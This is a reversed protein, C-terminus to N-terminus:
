ELVAVSETKPSTSENLAKDRLHLKRHRTLNNPWRFSFGCEECKYPKEKTHKMKHHKLSLASFFSRDCVPCVNERPMDKMHSKKHTKLLTSTRFGKGCEECVHPKEGTHIMEHYKKRSLSEFARDCYDCPFRNLLNTNWEFNANEEENGVHTMEHYMKAKATNFHRQCIRCPYRKIIGHKNETHKRLIDPTTCVKPCLECSWTRERTHTNIHNKMNTSTVFRRDCHPCAFNKIGAHRNKHITLQQQVRFRKSCGEVDCAFPWQSREVHILSHMRLTAASRLVVGCTDCMHSSPPKEPGGYHQKEKHRRLYTSSKFEQGCGDEDCKYFEPAGHKEIRHKLLESYRNFTWNCGDRACRYERPLGDHDRLHQRLDCLRRYSKGCKDRPCPHDMLGQHTRM